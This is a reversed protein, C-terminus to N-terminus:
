SRSGKSLKPNNKLIKFQQSVFFTVNIHLFIEFKLLSLM